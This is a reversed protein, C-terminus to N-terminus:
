NSPLIICCEFHRVMDAAVLMDKNHLVENNNVHGYLIFFLLNEFVELDVNDITVCMEKSEKWQGTFMAELVDSQAAILMLPATFQKGKVIFKVDHYRNKLLVTQKVKSRQVVAAHKIAEEITTDVLTNNSVIRTSPLKGYVTVIFELTLKDHPMLQRSNILDEYLILRKLSLGTSDLM